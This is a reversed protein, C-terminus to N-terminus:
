VEDGIILQYINELESALEADGINNTLKKGLLARIALMTQDSLDEQACAHELSNKIFEDM